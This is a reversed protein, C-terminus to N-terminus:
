RASFEHIRGSLTLTVGIVVSWPWTLFFCVSAIFSMFIWFGTDNFWTPLKLQIPKLHCALVECNYSVPVNPGNNDSNSYFSIAFGMLMNRAFPWETM